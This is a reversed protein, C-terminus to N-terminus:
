TMDFEVDMEGWVPLDEDTYPARVEASVIRVGFTRLRRMKECEIVRGDATVVRRKLNGALYQRVDGPQLSDLEGLKVKEVLKSTLPVTGSIDVDHHGSHEPGMPPAAFVGMTGVHNTAFPWDGPDAPISEDSGLFFHISFPGNFAQKGVFINAIWERYRNGIFVVGKRPAAGREAFIPPTAENGARGTQGGPHKRRAEMEQLFLGSASSHGYLRNIAQKARTASNRAASGRVSSANLGNTGGSGGVFEPYTYGFREHDRVTDSTWFTGDMRAFFPTLPTNEDQIQGKSTTYSSLVAPQPTVWTDNNVLQWLAFLRDVNCHHLFFLPDFASYPIFAM